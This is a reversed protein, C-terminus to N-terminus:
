LRVGIKSGTSRGPRRQRRRGSVSAAAVISRQRCLWPVLLFAWLFVSLFATGSDRRGRCPAAALPPGAVGAAGQGRGGRLPRRSPNELSLLLDGHGLMLVRDGDIWGVPEVVICGVTFAPGQGCAALMGVARRMDLDLLEAIRWVPGPCEDAIRVGPRVDHLASARSRHPMAVGERPDVLDLACEDLYGVSRPSPSPASPGRGPRM